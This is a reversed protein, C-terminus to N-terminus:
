QRTCVTCWHTGVVPINKGPLVWYGNFDQGGDGSGGTHKIQFSYRQLVNLVLMEYALGVSYSSKNLLRYTPKM